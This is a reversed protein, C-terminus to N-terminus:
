ATEINTITEINEDDYQQHDTHYDLIDILDKVNLSEALVVKTDGRGHKLMCKIQAGTYLNSWTRLIHEKPKPEYKPCDIDWYFLDGVPSSMPNPSIEDVQFKEFASMMQRNLKTVTQFYCYSDGYNDSEWAKGTFNHKAIDWEMKIFYHKDEPKNDDWEVRFTKNNHTYEEVNDYGEDPGSTCFVGPYPDEPQERKINDLMKEIGLSPRIEKYKPKFKVPIHGFAKDIATQCEGCYEQTCGEETGYEPGNGYTCYYYVKQCHKCRCKIHQM